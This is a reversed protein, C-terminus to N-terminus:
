LLRLYRMISWDSEQSVQTVIGQEEDDDNGGLVRKLKDM